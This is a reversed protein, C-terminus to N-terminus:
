HGLCVGVGRADAPGVANITCVETGPCPPDTPLGCENAPPTRDVPTLLECRSQVCAPAAGPRCTNGGPCIPMAPCNLSAPYDNAATALIATDEGGDACGCCDAPVEQCDTDTTCGMPDAAACECTLCGTADIVFGNACTLDCELPKCTLGCMNNTCVAAVNDSCAAPPCNVQGCAAQNASAPLAFTPCECCTSAALV